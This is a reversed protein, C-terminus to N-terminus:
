GTRTCGQFESVSYFLCEHIKDRPVLEPCREITFSCKKSAFDELSCPSSRARNEMLVCRPGSFKFILPDVKVLEERVAWAVWRIEWQARSCTRLPIFVELLERANMSVIVRTKVAQPLLFRADEYIVGSKLVEYYDRVSELLRELFARNELEVVKPPVIFAEGVVDLLTNFDLRMELLRDIVEVEGVDEGTLGTLERARSVLSRLYKDSYRQSLQSFSAHRHRVLQHSCVRSCVVEFVYISHELPSGHGRKVLETIWTEIKNEDMIEAVSEFDKPTITLKASIAILKQADPLRAVLRASPYHKSPM